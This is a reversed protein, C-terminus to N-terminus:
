LGGTYLVCLVYVAMFYMCYMCCMSCLIHMYLMGCLTSCQVIGKFTHTTCVCLMRCM